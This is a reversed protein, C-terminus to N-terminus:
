FSLLASKHPQQSQGADWSNTLLHFFVEDFEGV